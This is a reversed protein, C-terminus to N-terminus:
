NSKESSLNIGNTKPIETTANTHLVLYRCDHIAKELYSEAKGYEKNAYSQRSKDLIENLEYCAPNSSLIDQTFAIKTNIQSSNQEGKERSNVMIKASDNINPDNVHAHVLIEYTGAIKYPTAFLTTNDKSGPSLEDFHDKSFTFNIEENESSANLYIDYLTKNGSNSLTIPVAITENKYVTIKSPSLLDFMSYETEKEKQIQTQYVISTTTSSSTSSSGSGPGPLIDFIIKNSEVEKNGDNAHFILYDKGVYSGDPEIRVGHTQDISITMHEGGEFTFNLIDDPDYDYFYDDLDLFSSFVNNNKISVDPINYSVIGSYFTPTILVNSTTLLVKYRFYRWDQSTVTFNSLSSGLTWNNLQNTDPSTTTFIKIETESPTSFKSVFNLIDLKSEAKMDIVRSIFTGSSSNGSSPILKIVGSENVFSNNFTGLELLDKTDDFRYGFIPDRNADKILTDWHFADSLGMPDSINIVILANRPSDYGFSYNLFTSNSILNGNYSWHYTLNVSDVDFSTQNFLISGGESVNIQTTKDPYRLDSANSWQFYTFQSVL